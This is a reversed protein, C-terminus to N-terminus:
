LTDCNKVRDLTDRSEEGGDSYILKITWPEYSQWERNMM